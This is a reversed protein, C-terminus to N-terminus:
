REVHRDLAERAPPTFLLVLVVLALVMIPGGFWIRGAQVGLSYGVPLALLQIVVIPSRAAPSLRRLGRAAAALAAAGVLAIAAGLLARGIDGPKGVITAYVLFIAACVLAASEVLILLAAATVQRPVDTPGAPDGNPPREGRQGPVV